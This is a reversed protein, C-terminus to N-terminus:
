YDPLGGSRGSDGTAAAQTIKAGQGTHDSQESDLPAQCGLIDLGRSIFTRISAALDDQLRYGTLVSILGVLLAPQSLCVDQLVIQLDSPAVLANGIAQTIVMEQLVGEPASRKNRRYDPNTIRWQRVRETNGTGRFYDQNEPRSTWQRQSAAKSARRCDPKSCYRQRGRKRPDCRYDQNCHLCKCTTTSSMQPSLVVRRSWLHVGRGASFVGGGGGPLLRRLLRLFFLKQAFNKFFVGGLGM